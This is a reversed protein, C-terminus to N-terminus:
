KAPACAPSVLLRCVIGNPQYRTRIWEIESMALSMFADLRIAESDLRTQLMNAAGESQFQTTANPDLSSRSAWQRIVEMWTKQTVDVCYAITLVHHKASRWDINLKQGQPGVFLHSSKKEDFSPMNGDCNFNYAGLIYMSIPDSGPRNRTSHNPDSPWDLYIEAKRALLNINELMATYSDDYLKYIDSANRSTLANQDTIANLKRAHIFNYVLLRQLNIPVSLASSADTFVATAAALDEKAQTSIKDQYASLTYQFYAAILTGFFGLFAIGRVISFEKKASTFWRRLKKLIGLRKIDAKRAIANGAGETAM